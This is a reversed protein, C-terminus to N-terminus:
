SYFLAPLSISGAARFFCRVSDPGGTLTKKKVQFGIGREAEM